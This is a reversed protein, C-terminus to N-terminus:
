GHSRRLFVAKFYLYSKPVHYTGSEFFGTYRHRHVPRHVSVWMITNFVRINQTDPCNPHDCPNRTNARYFARCQQTTRCYNIECSSMALFFLVHDCSLSCFAAFSSYIHLSYVEITFGLSEVTRNKILTRHPETSTQRVAGCRIIKDQLSSWRLAGYSLRLYFNAGLRM